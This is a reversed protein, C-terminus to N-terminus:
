QWAKRGSCGSRLEDPALHDVNQPEPELEPDISEADVRERRQKLVFAQAVIRRVGGPHRGHRVAFEPM